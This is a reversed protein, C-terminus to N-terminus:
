SSDRKKFMHMKLFNRYENIMILACIVLLITRCSSWLLRNTPRYSDASPHCAETNLGISNDLQDKKCISASLMYLPKDTWVGNTWFLTIGAISMITVETWYLSARPNIPTSFSPRFSTSNLQKMKRDHAKSKQGGGCCYKLSHYINWM